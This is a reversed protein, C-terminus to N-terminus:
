TTIILKDVEDNYGEYIEAKFNEIREKATAFTKKDSEMGIFKRGSLNCAIGTTGSGTTRCGYLIPIVLFLCIAFFRAKRVM